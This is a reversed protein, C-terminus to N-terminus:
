GETKLIKVKLIAYIILTLMLCFLFNSIGLFDPLSNILFFISTIVLLFKGTKKNKFILFIGLISLIFFIINLVLVETNLRFYYTGTISDLTRQIQFSIHPEILSSIKSFIFIAIEALNFSIITMWFPSIKRM